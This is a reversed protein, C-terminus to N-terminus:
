KPAVLIQWRERFTIAVLGLLIEVGIWLLRHVSALILTTHAPFLPLMLTTIAAERTCIGGPALVTLFGVLWSVGFAGLTLWVGSGNSLLGDLSLPLLVAYSAGLSLWVAIQLLLLRLILKPHPQLSTRRLTLTIFTVWLVVLSIIALTVRQEGDYLVLLISGGLASSVALWLHESFIARTAQPVTLGATRYYGARGVFHWIGGPLYKGLESLAVMRFMTQYSQQSGAAAVADKALLVILLRGVILLVLSSIIRSLSVERVQNVVESYNNSLYWIVGIALLAIWGWKAIQIFRQM